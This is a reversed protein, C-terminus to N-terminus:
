GHFIVKKLSNRPTANLYDGFTNRVEYIIVKTM